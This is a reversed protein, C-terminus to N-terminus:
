PRTTAAPRTATVRAILRAIGPAAAAAVEVAAIGWNGSLSGAPVRNKQEVNGLTTGDPGLATWIIAVDDGARGATGHPTVRVTGTLTIGNATIDESLRYGRKELAFALARRLAINGDGPAGVVSHITLTQAALSAADPANADGFRPALAAAAAEALEKLLADGGAQWAAASIRQRQDFRGREAGKPDALNWRIRLDLRDNAGAAPAATAEATLLWSRLNGTGTTAIIDHRTFAEVMANALAVPRPAGIVARVLVGSPGLPVSLPHERVPDISEFPHPPEQCAALLGACLLAM